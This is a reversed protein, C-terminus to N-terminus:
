TNPFHQHTRYFRVIENAAAPKLREFQALSQELGATAVGRGGARLLLLAKVTPWSLGIVKAVILITDSREQIMSREILPLPLDCMLALAAATEEFRGATAFTRLRNDDLQGSRSLTDVFILAERYDLSQACREARIRDTVEDVAKQVAPKAQPYLVELKARAAASAVALLKLFLHPPIEPRSGVCEALSEDSASREVLKMYGADSFKAGLNRATSLVVHEDGRELLVDTLPESLAQRRSIALLHEQTKIMANQILVDDDLRASFSLVPGAVDIADDFALARIVNPPAEAIPALRVALLARASLEIDIALRTIVDDFLAIEQESYDVAGLIFLDTLRQLLEKRRAPSGREVVDQLGHMFSLDVTMVVWEVM